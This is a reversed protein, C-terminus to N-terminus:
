LGLSNKVVSFSVSGAARTRYRGDKFLFVTPTTQGVGAKQGADLDVQVAADYANEETDTVVADADLDTNAALFERTKPLVNDSDFARQEAYYHDVLAWFADASRAYTAELAQTAPEAWQYKWPYGRFVFAARGPEVLESEIKPVTKQEFVRCRPCSPDEFAVIAAEAEFPSPGLTPQDGLGAAAPHDEIREGTPTSTSTSTPTAMPTQTADTMTPDNGGTGGSDGGSGELCGALATAVFAGTAALVSRRSRFRSGDSHEM